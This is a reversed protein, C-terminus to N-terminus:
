IEILPQAGERKIYVVGSPLKVPNLDALKTENDDSDDTNSFAVVNGLSDFYNNNLFKEIAQDDYSNQVSISEPEVYINEDDDDKKCASFCLSGAIVYLFIKKM